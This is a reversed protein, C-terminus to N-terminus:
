NHTHTHACTHTHTHILAICAHTYRHTTYIIVIGHCLFKKCQDNLNSDCCISKIVCYIWLGLPNVDVNGMIIGVMLYKIEDHKHTNRRCNVSNYQSHKLLSNYTPVCPQHVCVCMHVRVCFVCLLCVCCVCM